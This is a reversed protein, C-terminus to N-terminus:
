NETMLLSPFALPGRSCEWLDAVMAENDTALTFLSPFADCLAEKGCWINKWFRVMRGNGLSFIANPFFTGWENRIEKWVCTGYAGRVDGSIWGREEEFKGKIVNRWPAERENAFHWSWKCM